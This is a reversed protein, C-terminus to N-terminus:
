SPFSPHLPAQFHGHRGRSDFTARKMGYRPNFAGSYSFLAICIGLHASGIKAIGNFFSGFALLISSYIDICLPMAVASVAISCIDARNSVKRFRDMWGSLPGTPCQGGHYHSDASSIPVRTSSTISPKNIENTTTPHFLPGAEEHQM